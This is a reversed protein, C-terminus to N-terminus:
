TCNAGPQSSSSATMYAEMYHLYLDERRRWLVHEDTWSCDVLLHDKQRVLHRKYSGPCTGVARVVDFLIPPDGQFEYLDAINLVSSRHLDECFEFLYASNGVEQSDLISLGKNIDYYSVELAESIRHCLG